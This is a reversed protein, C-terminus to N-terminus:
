PGSRVPENLLWMLLVVFSMVFLVVFGLFIIQGYKRFFRRRSSGPRSQGQM